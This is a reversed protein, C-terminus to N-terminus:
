RSVRLLDGQKLELRRRAPTAFRLSVSQRSKVQIEIGLLSNGLLAMRQFGAM